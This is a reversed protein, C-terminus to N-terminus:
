KYEIKLDTIKGYQDYHYWIYLKLKSNEIASITYITHDVKHFSELTFILEVKQKQLIKWYAIVQARGVIQGTTNDPYVFHINPSYVVINEHLFFEMSHFDYANWHVIFQKTIDLLLDEINM